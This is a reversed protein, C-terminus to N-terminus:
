SPSFFPRLRLLVGIKKSASKALTSIHFQWNLNKTFSLGLTNLTSSFATSHWQLLPSLLIHFTIDLLYNYFNLKNLPLVLVNVDFKLLMYWPFLSSHGHQPHTFSVRSCKEILIGEICYFLFTLKREIYYVFYPCLFNILYCILM